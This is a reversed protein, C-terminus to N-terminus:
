GALAVLDLEAIREQDVLLTIQVIRGEMVQFMFVARPRGGPAWMMGAVGDILALQAGQARGAFDGAVVRAGRKDDPVGTMARAAADARFMVDPDLLALLADFDGKQSAALFAGVVQRQRPLDVQPAAPDQQLRRRARSTLQRSADTSRGIIPGIEDFPVAFIDHLVFAVREAPGLLDLVVLLASGVSEAMLVQDQPDLHEPSSAPIDHVRGATPDEPRAQRWRLRDLCVRAVITTLWGAFNEIGGADARSLRIWMDQVADEAEAESGLMRYAVSRLRGQNAEFSEILRGEDDV